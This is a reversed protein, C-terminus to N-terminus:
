TRETSILQQVRARSRAKGIWPFVSIIPHFNVAFGLDELRGNKAEYDVLFVCAEDANDFPGITFFYSPADNPSSVVICWQTVLHAQGGELWKVM